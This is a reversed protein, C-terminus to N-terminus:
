GGKPTGDPNTTTYTWKASLSQNSHTTTSITLTSNTGGGGGRGGLSLEEVHTPIVVAEPEVLLEYYVGSNSNSGSGPTTSQPTSSLAVDSLVPYCSAVKRSQPQLANRLLSLSDGAGEGASGGSGPWCILSLDSHVLIGNNNPDEPAFPDSSSSPEWDVKNSDTDFPLLFLPDALLNTLPTVEGAGCGEEEQSSSSLGWSSADWGLLEVEVPAPNPPPLLLHDDEGSHPHGSSSSNNNLDVELILSSAEKLNLHLLSHDGQSKRSILQEMPTPRDSEQIFYRCSDLILWQYAHSLCQLSM